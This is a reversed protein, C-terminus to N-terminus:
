RGGDIERREREGGTKNNKKRVKSMRSEPKRELRERRRDQLSTDWANKVKKEWKM